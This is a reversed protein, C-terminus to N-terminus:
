LIILIATPIIYRNAPHLLNGALFHGTSLKSSPQRISLRLTRHLRIISIGLQMRFFSFLIHNVPHLLNGAFFTDLPCNRLLTTSDFLTLKKHSSNFIVVLSRGVFQFNFLPNQTPQLSRSRVSHRLLVSHLSCINQMLLIIHVFISHSAIIWSITMPIYRLKTACKAQSSPTAREFRTMGVM